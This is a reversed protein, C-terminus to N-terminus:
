MSSTRKEIGGSYSHLLNKVKERITGQKDILKDAKLKMHASVYAIRQSGPFATSQVSGAPFTRAGFCLAAVEFSSSGLRRPNTKRWVDAISFFSVAVMSYLLHVTWNAFYAGSNGPFDQFAARCRSSFLGGVALLTPLYKILLFCM